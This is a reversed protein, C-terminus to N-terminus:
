PVVDGSGAAGGSVSRRRRRERRERREAKRAREWVHCDRASLALLALVGLASAAVLSFSAERVGVASIRAMDWVLKIALMVMLVIRGRPHGHWAGLALVLISVSLVAFGVQLLLTFAHATRPDQILAGGAVELEVLQSRVMERVGGVGHRVADIARWLANVAILGLAILLQIPRQRRAQADAM